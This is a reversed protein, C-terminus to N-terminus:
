RGWDIKGFFFKQSAEVVRGGNEAFSLFLLRVRARGRVRGGHGVGYHTCFVVGALPDRDSNGKAIRVARDAEGCTHTRFWFM